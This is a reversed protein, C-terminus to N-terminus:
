DNHYPEGRLITMARYLQEVLFPRVMQHNFTLRSLSLKDAAAAYMGESFGCPGGIIFVLRRPAANMRRQMWQALERSTLEAGHEDLLVICDGAQLLKKIEAEERRKQESADLGRTNKLAPVVATEVTLYHRLRSLYDDTLAAIHKDATKGVAILLTKM